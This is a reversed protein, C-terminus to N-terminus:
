IGAGAWKDRIAGHVEHAGLHWSDLLDFRGSFSQVSWGRGPADSEDTVPEGLFSSAGGLQISKDRIAGIVTPM